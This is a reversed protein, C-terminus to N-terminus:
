DIDGPFWLVYERMAAESSDSSHRTRGSPSRSGRGLTGARPEKYSRGADPVARGDRGAARYVDRDPSWGNGSWTDVLPKFYERGVHERYHELVDAQEAAAVMRM